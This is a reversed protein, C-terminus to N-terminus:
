EEAATAPEVSMYLETSGIGFLGGAGALVQDYGTWHDNRIAQIDSYYGLILYPCDDYVIQQLQGALVNIREPDDTQCLQQYTQTYSESDWGTLSKSSPCFRRASTAANVSNHWSLMCMDWDDKPGCVDEISGETSKWSIKIGLTQMDESLVSAATSSWDDEASTYLRLVLEEENGIFELNGDNDMDAYGLSNLVGLAASPNYDRPNPVQYFYDAGPSAWTTGVMSSQGSSMNLMRARDTCYEVAQRAGTQQFLDSRTNFALAWVQSSPLYAQILQVGPVGELTTLQVDTMGVAADAEGSSIARAAGSETTYYTFQVQGIKARGGFYDERTLFSWREEQPANPEQSLVFPGTGIMEANDFEGLDDEYGRWVKEPLIPVSCLLMDGKIRETTIVVTRDDPCTVGTIGDMCDGYLHSSGMNEYTFRVDKSTLPTGDSFTVGQRLRVTWTLRDSSLSWDEALCGSPDGAADLRWLPDYALLFFEEATQNTAVFPNLSDPGETLAVRFSAGGDASSGKGSGGCGTLLLLAACLLAPVARRARSLISRGRM